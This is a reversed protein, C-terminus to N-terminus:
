LWEEKTYSLMFMFFPQVAIVQYAMRGENGSTEISAGM